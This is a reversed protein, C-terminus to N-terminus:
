FLTRAVAAAAETDSSKWNRLQRKEARYQEYWTQLENKNPSRGWPGVPILRLRTHQRSLLNTDQDTRRWGHTWEERPSLERATDLWEPKLVKCDELLDVAQVISVRHGRALQAQRNALPFLVGAWEDLTYAPAKEILARHPMRGARKIDPVPLGHEDLLVVRPDKFSTIPRQHKDLIVRHDRDLYHGAADQQACPLSPPALKGNFFYYKGRYFTWAVVFRLALAHLVGAHQLVARSMSPGKHAGKPLTLLGRVPQGGLTARPAWEPWDTFAVPRFRRVTGDETTYAMTFNTVTNLAALFTKWNDTKWDYGYPWVGAVVEEVTRDFTRLYGDRDSAPLRWADLLLRLALPAGAGGNAGLAQTQILYAPTLDHLRELNEFLLPEGDLEPIGALREADQQEAPLDPSGVLSRPLLAKDPKDEVTMPENLNATEVIVTAATLGRGAPTELSTQCVVQTISEGTAVQVIVSAIGHGRKLKEFLDEDNLLPECPRRLVELFGIYQELKKRPKAGRMAKLKHRLALIVPDSTAARRVAQPQNKVIRDARRVRERVRERVRDSDANSKTKRKM